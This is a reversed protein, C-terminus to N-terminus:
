RIIGEKVPKGKYVPTIHTFSYGSDVVLCCKEKPNEELYKQAALTGGVPSICQGCLSCM